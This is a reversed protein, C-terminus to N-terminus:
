RVSVKGIRLVEKGIRGIISDMERGRERERLKIVM